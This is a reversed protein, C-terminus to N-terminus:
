RALSVLVHQFPESLMELLNSEIHNDEESSQIPESHIIINNCRANPALLKACKCNICKERREYIKIHNQSVLILKVV